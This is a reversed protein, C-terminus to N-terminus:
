KKKYAADFVFLGNLQHLHHMASLGKRFNPHVITNTNEVYEDITLKEIKNINLARGYIGEINRQSPRYLENGYEFIAGGNRACRADIVVPNQKHPQINEMKLSDIKYIYLEDQMTTTSALRKNIFLWKQKDRDDYISADAVMEGEFATSYLEWETPFDVCRYIELRKNESTEPMLFIEGDEKFIFPYSLHYDLDLVDVVNTVKEDKIIGCSIKGRKTKYSYNEFFVYCDDNYQLLFPDAWFEKKPLEIPSIESHKTNLFNGKGIFITWCDYRVGMLYNLGRGVIKNIIYYYFRLVYKLVDILSPPGYLPIICDAFSTLTNEQGLKRLNKLLVSVSGELILTETKILSWQRNFHAEDLVLNKRPDVTQVQLSVGVSPEKLVIEWFGIPGSRHITYDSYQLSWIGHKSLSLNKSGFHVGALNVLVDLDYALIKDSLDSDIQPTSHKKKSSISLRPVEDLFKLIKRREVTSAEKFFLRELRCQLKLLLTGLLNKSFPSESITSSVKSTSRPKKECQIVLSLNLKPDNKIEEIARLEWNVM